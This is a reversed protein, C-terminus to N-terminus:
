DEVYDLVKGVLGDNVGPMPMERKAHNYFSAFVFKEGVRIGILLIAIIIIVCAVVKLVVTLANHKKPTTEAM